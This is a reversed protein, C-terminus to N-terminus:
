VIKSKKEFSCPGARLLLLKNAPNELVTQYLQENIAQAGNLELLVKTEEALFSHNELGSHHEVAQTLSQSYGPEISEQFHDWVIPLNNGTLHEQTNSAVAGLVNQVDDLHTHALVNQHATMITGTGDPALNLFLQSDVVLDLTGFSLAVIVSRLAAGIAFRPVLKTWDHELNLGRLKVEKNWKRIQNLHRITFGAVITTSFIFAPHFIGLATSSILGFTDGGLKQVYVPLLAILQNDSLNSPSKLAGLLKYDTKADRFHGHSLNKIIM